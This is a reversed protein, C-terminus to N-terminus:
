QAEQVCGVFALYVQLEPQLDDHLRVVIAEVLDQPFDAEMVLKRAKQGRKRLQEVTENKDISGLAETCAFFSKTM